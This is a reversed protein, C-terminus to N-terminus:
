FCAEYISTTEELSLNYPAIAFLGGMTDLANKAYKKADEKKIGYDSLKLNDMGVNKILKKLATILALAKEGEPLNDVDEGMAKALPVFREPCKEAMFSFYAVSIAILGAGHPLNHHYASLAHELSHQSICSSLSEVIGSATNAWAIATRAEINQGDKVAIPLYKTILSVAQLAHSDSAPQNMTALYGEVSHFFADMGQFATFKPPISLMLEPDVISLVPFTYNNGFGIKESTETKTIVTWPDAETGTGATTTIAVIPLAGGKVEQGKGSGGNIYDWYEGPNKAMLAISKASDISSGGGLGIVFDCNNDRAVKAGEAVHQAIPNPLIKDFVVSEVGNEKLYGVVRDIYGYKKMSNGSSIVILAKRGPLYPTTALEKLKGPGFLIRTPMYYNFEQKM